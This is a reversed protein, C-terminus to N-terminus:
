KSVVAYIFATAQDAEVLPVDGDEEIPSVELIARLVDGLKVAGSLIFHSFFQSLEGPGQLLLPRPLHSPPPPFRQSM